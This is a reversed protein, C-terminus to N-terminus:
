KGERRGEQEKQNEGSRTGGSGEGGCGGEEQRIGGEKGGGGESKCGGDSWGGAVIRVSVDDLSGASLGLVLFNWYKRLSAAM